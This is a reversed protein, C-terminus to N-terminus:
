INVLRPSTGSFCIRFRVTSGLFYNLNEDRRSERLLSPSISPNSHRWNLKIKLIFHRSDGGRRACSVLAHARCWRHTGASFVHRKDYVVRTCHKITDSSLFDLLYNSFKREGRQMHVCTVHLWQKYQLLPDFGSFFWPRKGTRKFTSTVDSGCENTQINRHMPCFFQSTSCELLKAELKRRLQLKPAKWAVRSSSPFRKRSSM